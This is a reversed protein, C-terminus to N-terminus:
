GTTAGAATATTAGDEAAGSPVAAEAPGAPVPVAPGAPGTAEATRPTQAPIGHERELALEEADLVRPEPRTLAWAACVVALFLYGLAVGGGGADWEVKEAHILGIFSLVAGAAAAVTASIFKKDIIFAVISGLVLGALVAGDGLLHLGHLLVSNGELDAETINLPVAPNAKAAVSVATTVTNDIQGAAWSAINPIIAAIVAAGHAKPSVQFAQAGILLGIYLLIPVIAPLPLVANLLGFLGGFCLLAIVVGTALSYGTRGGASKWGPHGIYVAPPFPSGLASGIIAGFGDALLIPRLNYSDGASAASEVNTMGETFNYVGLPIATALLPSIDSLGQGLQHFHLTPLSLAIDKAASSVDPTSMFGGIWGIATGVALAVAGIPLNWPLRLDTLLGVLLLGFVPLAIWAADWMQAAPRLSIFAISIGALTGLMAARPAYRRITPGIFAGVVVILGIIFAWALGAEWAKIPNKTKLYIPLMIVFTVIFMHPVSPGYPMATVDDRGEKAALRRGLYAYFLNGILMAIGLAPLIAGFVDNKPINVVFLCLSTLVIVNVLVNIGLGFFANTDGKAWYPLSLAPASSPPSDASRNGIKIM